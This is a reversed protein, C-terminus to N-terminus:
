IWKQCHIQNIAPHLCHVPPLRASPLTQPWHKNASSCIHVHEMLEEALSSKVLHICIFHEAAKQWLFYPLLVHVCVKKQSVKCWAVNLGDAHYSLEFVNFQAALGASIGNWNVAVIGGGAGMVSQVVLGSRSAVISGRQIWWDTLWLGLTSSMARVEESSQPM